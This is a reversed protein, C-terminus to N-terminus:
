TASLAPRASRALDGLAERIDDSLDKFNVTLNSKEPAKALLSATVKGVNADLASVPQPALKGKVGFFAVYFATTPLATAGVAIFFGILIGTVSLTTADPNLAKEAETGLAILYLQSVFDTQARAASFGAKSAVAKDTKGDLIRQTAEIRKTLDDVKEATAIKGELAAKADMLVLCKSKCGGRKGEDAIRKEATALQARLGDATVTSAWANQDQLTKLQERWFALNTKESDVAEQTNKYAATQVTAEQTSKERMGITYGLHSFLELCVFFIGAAKMARGKGGLGMDQILKQAPFIFAAAITVLCLAVAHLWSMTAGFKYTMMCSIILGVVGVGLFVKQLTQFNLPMAHM